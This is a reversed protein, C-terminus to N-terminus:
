KVKKEYTHVLEVFWRNTLTEVGRKSNAASVAAIARDATWGCREVLYIAIAAASRNVGAACHVYVPGPLNTAILNSTVAFGCLYAPLNHENVEGDVMRVAYMPYESAYDAGSLNIIARPCIASPDSGLSGIYINEAVHEVTDGALYYRAIQLKGYIYYLVRSIM